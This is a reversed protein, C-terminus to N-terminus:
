GGEIHVRNWLETRGLVGHVERGVQHNSLPQLRGQGFEDFDGWTPNTVRHWAAVRISTHIRTTKHMPVNKMYAGLVCSVCSDQSMVYSGRGVM